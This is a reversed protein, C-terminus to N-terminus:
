NTTTNTLGAKFFLNRHQLEINICLINSWLSDEYYFTWFAFEGRDARVSSKAEVDCDLISVRFFIKSKWKIITRPQRYMKVYFTPDFNISM